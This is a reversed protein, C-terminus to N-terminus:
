HENCKIPVIAIIGSVNKYKNLTKIIDWNEETVLIENLICQINGLEFFLNLQKCKKIINLLFQRFTIQESIVLEIHKQYIPLVLKLFM